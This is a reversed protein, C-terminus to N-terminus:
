CSTVTLCCQPLAYSARTVNPGLRISKANGLAVSASGTRVAGPEAESEADSGTDADIPRAQAAQAQARAPAPAPAPASVPSSPRVAPAPESAAKNAGSAPAEVAQKASPQPVHIPAPTIAPASGSGSGGGLLRDVTTIRAVPPSAQPQVLVLDLKESQALVLAQATPMVGLARGSASIVRVQMCSYLVVSAACSLSIVVQM